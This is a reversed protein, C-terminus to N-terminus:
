HIAQRRCHEPLYLEILLNVMHLMMTSFRLDAWYRNVFELVSCAWKLGNRSVLGMMLSYTYEPKRRAVYPKLV